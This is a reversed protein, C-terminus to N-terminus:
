LEIQETQVELTNPDIGFVNVLTFEPAWDHWCDCRVTGNEAYAVIRANQGTTTLRYLHWPPFREAVDRVVPPRTELWAQGKATWQKM